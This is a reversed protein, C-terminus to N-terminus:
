LLGFYQLTAFIMAISFVSIMAGIIFGMIFEKIM